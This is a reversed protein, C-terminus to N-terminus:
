LCGGDRLVPLSQIDRIPALAKVRRVGERRLWSANNLYVLMIACANTNTLPHGYFSYDFEIRPLRPRTLTLNLLITDCHAWFLPLCWILVGSVVVIITSCRACTLIEQGPRVAPRAGSALPTQGFGWGHDVSRFSTRLTASPHATIAYFYLDLGKVVTLSLCFYPLASADDADPVM